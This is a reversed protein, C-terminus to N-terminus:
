KSKHSETVQSSILMNFILQETEKIKNYPIILLPINNINCYNIKIWDNLQRDNIGNKNNLWNDEKYHQVGNFEILFLLKKNQFIAFDFRLPFNKLSRCDEFSFEKKYNINNDQLFKIIKREGRSASECPCRAGEKFTQTRTEFITGCELHIFKSKERVDKYELIEYDKVTKMFEIFKNRNREFLSQASQKRRCVNCKTEFKNERLKRYTAQFEQGCECILNLRSNQNKYESELVKLKSNNEINEKVRNFDYIGFQNNGLM